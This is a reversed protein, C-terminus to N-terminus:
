ASIWQLRRRLGEAAAAIEEATYRATDFIIDVKLGDPDLHPHLELEAGASAPTFVQRFGVAGPIDGGTEDGYDSSVFISEFSDMGLASISALEYESCYEYAASEALQRQLAAIGDEPSEELRGDAASKVRVAIVGMFLGVADRVEDDALDRRSVVKVFLVDNTHNFDQLAKAWAYEVATNM